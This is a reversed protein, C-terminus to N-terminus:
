GDKEAEEKIEKMRNYMKKMKKNMDLLEAMWEETDEIVKQREM